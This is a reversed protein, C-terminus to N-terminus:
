FFGEWEPPLTGYSTNSGPSLHVAWTFSFAEVTQGHQTVRTKTVEGVLLTHGVEWMSRCFSSAPMMVALGSAESIFDRVEHHDYRCNSVDQKTLPQNGVSYFTPTVKTGMYRTLMGYTKPLPVVGNVMNVPFVVVPHDSEFPLIVVDPFTGWKPIRLPVTMSHRFRYHDQVGITISPNLGYEEGASYYSTQSPMNSMADFLIAEFEVTSIKNAELLGGVLVSCWRVPRKTSRVSLHM